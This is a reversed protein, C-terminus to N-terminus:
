EDRHRDPDYNHAQRKMAQNQEAKQIADIWQTATTSYIDMWHEVQSDPHIFQNAIQTLRNTDTLGARLYAHYIRLLQKPSALYAGTVPDTRTGTPWQIPEQNANAM